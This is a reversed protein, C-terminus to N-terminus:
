EKPAKPFALLLKWLTLGTLAGTLIMWLPSMMYAEMGFWLVCALVVCIRRYLPRYWPQTFDFM